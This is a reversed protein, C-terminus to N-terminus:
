REVEELLQELSVEGRAFALGLTVGIEWQGRVQAPRLGADRLAAAPASWPVGAEIWDIVAADDFGAALWHEAQDPEEGDLAAPRHDAVVEAIRALAALQQDARARLDAPTEGAAGDLEVRLDAPGLRERASVRLKGNLNSVVVFGGRGASGSMIVRAATM